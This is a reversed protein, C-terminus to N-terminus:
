YKAYCGIEVAAAANRDALERCRRGHLLLEGGQRVLRGTEEVQRGVQRRVRVVDVDVEDVPPQDAAATPRAAIAVTRRGAAAAQAVDGVGHTLRPLRPPQRRVALRRPPRPHPPPPLQVLQRRAGRLQARGVLPEDHLQVARLGPVRLHAPLVRPEPLLHAAQPLPEGGLLLGGISVGAVFGGCSRWLIRVYTCMHERNYYTHVLVIIYAMVM